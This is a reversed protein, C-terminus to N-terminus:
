PLISWPPDLAVTPTWSPAPFKLWYSHLVAEDMAGPWISVNTRQPVPSMSRVQVATSVQPLEELQWWSMWTTSVVGGSMAQGGGARTSHPPGVSGHAVPVASPKSSQPPAAM